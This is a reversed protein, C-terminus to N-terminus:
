LSLPRVGKNGLHVHHIGWDNLLPDNFSPNRLLRSLHPSLDEGSSIKREVETLGAALDPPCSFSHTKLVARPSPRVLRKTLNLFTHVVAEPSQMQTTDYEFAVLENKLHAVWDRYLDIEM